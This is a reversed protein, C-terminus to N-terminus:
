KTCMQIAGPISGPFRILDVRILYGGPGKKLFKTAIHSCAHCLMVFCLLYFIYYHIVLTFLVLRCSSPSHRIPKYLKLCHFIRHIETSKVAGCVSTVNTRSILKISVFVSSAFFTFVAFYIFLSVNVRDRSRRKIM